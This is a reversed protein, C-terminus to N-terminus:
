EITWFDIDELQTLFNIFNDGFFASAVPISQHQRAFTNLIVLGVIASLLLPAIAKITHVLSRFRMPWIKTDGPMVMHQDGQEVVRIDGLRYMKESESQALDTIIDRFRIVDKSKKTSWVLWGRECVILREWEQFLEPDTAERLHENNRFLIRFQDRNVKTWDSEQSCIEITGCVRHFLLSLLVSDAQSLKKSPRQITTKLTSLSNNIYINNLLTETSHLISAFAEEPKRLALFCTCMIEYCKIKKEPDTAHSYGDQARELAFELDTRWAGNESNASQRRLEIGRLYAEVATKMNADLLVRFHKEVQQSESLLADHLTIFRTKGGFLYPAAVSLANKISSLNKSIQDQLDADTVMAELNDIFQQM